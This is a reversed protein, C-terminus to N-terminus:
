CRIVLKVIYSLALSLDVIVNKTAGHAHRLALGLAVSWALIGIYNGNMLASVPNDVVSMLLNSMVELIGGPASLTEAGVKLHISVPFLFSAVVAVLGSAFTGMLYLILVPGIQTQQGKKHNAISATVLVFVLVPAVAKLASIF